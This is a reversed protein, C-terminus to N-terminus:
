KKILGSEWHDENEANWISGTLPDDSPIFDLKILLYQCKQFSVRYVVNYIYFFFFSIKCRRNIESDVWERVQTKRVKEQKMSERFVDFTNRCWWRM